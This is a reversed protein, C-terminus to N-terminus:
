KKVACGRTNKAVILSINNEMQTLQLNLLEAQKALSSLIQTKMQKKSTQTKM